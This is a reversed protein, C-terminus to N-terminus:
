VEQCEASGFSDLTEAIKPFDMYRDKLADLVFRCPNYIRTPPVIPLVDSQPHEDM